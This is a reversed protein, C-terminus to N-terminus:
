PEANIAPKLPALLSSVKAKIGMWLKAVAAVVNTPCFMPALLGSRTCLPVTAVSHILQPKLTSTAASSSGVPRKQM